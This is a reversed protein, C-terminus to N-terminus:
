DHYKDCTYFVFEVTCTLLCVGLQTVRDRLEGAERDGAACVSKLCPRVAHSLRLSM